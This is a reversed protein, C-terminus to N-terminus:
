ESRMADILLQGMASETLRWSMGKTSHADHLIARFEASDPNLRSLRNYIRSRRAVLERIGEIHADAPQEIGSEAKAVLDADSDLYEALEVTTIGLIRRIAGISQGDVM